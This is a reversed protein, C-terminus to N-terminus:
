TLSLICYMAPQIYIWLIWVKDDRYSCIDQCGVTSHWLCTTMVIVNYKNWEYNWQSGINESKIAGLPGIFTWIASLIENFRMASQTEFLWYSTQILSPVVVNTLYWCTYLSLQLLHYCPICHQTCNCEVIASWSWSMLNFSSLVRRLADSIHRRGGRSM